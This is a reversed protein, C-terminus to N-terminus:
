GFLCLCDSRTYPFWRLRSVESHHCGLHRKCGWGQGLDEATRSYSPRIQCLAWDEFRGTQWNQAVVVVSVPRQSGPIFNAEIVRSVQKMRYRRLLEPESSSVHCCNFDTGPFFRYATNEFANNRFM